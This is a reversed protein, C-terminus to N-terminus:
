AEGRVVLGEIREVQDVVWFDQALQPNLVFDFPLSFWGRHGMAYGWEEGWSNPGFFVRQDLDYGCIPVAHGGVARENPGPMPIHGSSTVEPLEISKFVLFGIIIPMGAFALTRCLETETQQVRAYGLAQWEQGAQYAAAPPKQRFRAPDYLWLDNPPAGAEAVAKVANRIQAGSDWSVTGERVRTEYYIFLRSPNMPPQGSRLAVADLLVATAFATCSGINLQRHVMPSLYSLDVRRPLPMDAQFPASFRWDRPDHTDPRRWGLGKIRPRRPWRNEIPLTM